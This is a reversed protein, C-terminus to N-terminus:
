GHHKPNEDSDSGERKAVAFPRAIQAIVRLATRIAVDHLPMIVRPLIRSMAVYRDAVVAVERMVGDAFPDGLRVVPEEMRQRECKLIKVLRNLDLRPIPAHRLVRAQITMLFDDVLHHRCFWLAFHKGANM